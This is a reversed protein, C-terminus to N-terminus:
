YIYIVLGYIKGTYFFGAKSLNEKDPKAIYICQEFSRKREPYYKYKALPNETVVGSSNQQDDINECYSAPPDRTQSCSWYLPNNYKYHLNELFPHAECTFTKDDQNEFSSLFSEINHYHKIPLAIKERDDKLIAKSQSVSKYAIQLQGSHEDTEYSIISRDSLKRRVDEIPIQVYENHKLSVNKNGFGSLITDYQQYSWPKV